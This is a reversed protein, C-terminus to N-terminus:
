FFIKVETTIEDGRFRDERNNKDRHGFRKYRLYLGAQKGIEIDAGIGAVVSRQQLSLPETPQSRTHQLSCFTLLTLRQTARYMSTLDSYWTHLLPSVLSSSFASQYQNTWVVIWEKQWLRTHHKIQLHSAFFSFPKQESGMAFTETTFRYKGGIRQYPGSGQIWPTFRSRTFANATHFISLSDHHHSIEQSYANDWSFRWKGRNSSVKASIGKRNNSLVDPAQLPNVYLTLDYLHDKPLGSVSYNINTNLVANDLSVFEYPVYYGRLTFDWANPVLSYKGEGYLAFTNTHLLTGFAHSSALESFVHLRKSFSLNAELSFLRTTLELPNKHSTLQYKQYGNLSLSHRGLQYSLKGAAVYSPLQQMVQPPTATFNTRGYFLKLAFRRFLQNASFLLGQAANLGMVKLPNEASAYIASYKDFPSPYWDWPLRDFPHSVLSQGSLTLTSIFHKGTCNGATISFEGWRTYKVVELSPPMRFLLNKSWNGQLGTFSHVVSLNLRALTNRKHMEMALFLFPQEASRNLLGPDPYPAFALSRHGSVQDPYAEQMRTYLAYFNAYGYCFFHVSDKSSVTDVQSTSSPLGKNGEATLYLKLSSLLLILMRWKRM